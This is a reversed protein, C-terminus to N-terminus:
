ISEGFVTPEGFQADDASESKEADKGSDDSEPEGVWAEGRVLDLWEQSARELDLDEVDLFDPRDECPVGSEEAAIHTFYNVEVHVPKMKSNRSIGNKIIGAADRLIRKLTMELIEADTQWSKENEGDETESTKDDDITPSPKQDKKCAEDSKKPKANGKSQKGFMSALREPARNGFISIDEKEDAELLKKYASPHDTTSFYGCDTECEVVSVYFHLEIACSQLSWRRGQGVRPKVMRRLYQSCYPRSVGTSYTGPNEM